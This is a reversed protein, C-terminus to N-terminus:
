LLSVNNSREWDSKKRKKTWSCLGDKHFILHSLIHTSMTPDEIKSWKDIHRNKYWYEGTKKSPSQLIDQSRSITIGRASNIKRTWVTKAIHPRQLEMLIKLHKEIEIFFSIHIKIPISNLICICFISAPPYVSLLYTEFLWLSMSNFIRRLIDLYVYTPSYIYAYLKFSVKRHPSVINGLLFIDDLM